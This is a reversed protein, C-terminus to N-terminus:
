KKEILEYELTINIRESIKKRVINPIKIDFDQPTVSFNTTLSITSNVRKIKAISEVEKDIGRINLMGKITYEKEM